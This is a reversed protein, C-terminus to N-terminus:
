QNCEFSYTCSLAMVKGLVAHWVHLSRRILTPLAACYGGRLMQIIDLKM